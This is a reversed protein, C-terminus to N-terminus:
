NLGRRSQMRIQVDRRSPNSNFFRRDEESLRVSVEGELDFPDGLLVDEYLGARKLRELYGFHESRGRCSVWSPRIAQM